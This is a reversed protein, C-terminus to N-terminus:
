DAPVRLASFRVRKCKCMDARYWVTGTGFTFMCLRIKFFDGKLFCACAGPAKEMIQYSIPIKRLPMPVILIYKMPM